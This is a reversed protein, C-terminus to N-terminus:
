FSIHFSDLLLHRIWGHVRRLVVQLLRGCFLGLVYILGLKFIVDSFLILLFVYAKPIMRVAADRIHEKHLELNHFSSILEV